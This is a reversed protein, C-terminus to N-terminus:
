SAERTHLHFEPLHFEFRRGEPLPQPFDRRFHAGRSEPRRLASQAIMLAVLARDSHAAAPSLTAVARELGARDRIVGVCESMIARIRAPDLAPDEAAARDRRRYASPGAVVQARAPQPADPTGLVDEAVRQGFSAAELLSNSALRNAGHLGTCAVEGCAWLGPITTRGRGDTLVGGMHYHAAPRVPIPTRAPDIGASHCLGAITPFHSAFRDGLAARADLFVQHGAAIHNWIARAVIDRAQLEETFRSGTEDILVAGEGRLAESALPMPDRGIDIATPHFQVFELDGLAAGARAALALGSGWNEHPSTTDRWLACAGGTALIIRDTHRLDQEGDRELVVGQPTGDIVLSRATANEIITISPTARAAAILAQTVVLGTADKAHVIRHKRHAAELGLRLRKRADRDFAVGQATLREIVAPGDGVTQRVIAADNLGNGATLTDEVHIGIRDDDGVAAAIGGQAWASSCGEGLPCPSVLIVPLPALALATTLGALGAGLIVPKM